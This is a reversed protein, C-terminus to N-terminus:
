EQSDVQSELWEIGSSINGYVNGRWGHGGPYTKLKVSAGHEGLEKVARKAHQDINIFDAPSHLIFYPKDKAGRLDGILQPRFISMAVFSGTVPTDEVVSQAYVAPGGSSWGLAFVNKRNIKLREGADKVVSAVFEETTFTANDPKLKKTPWVVRNEDDSWAHAVLELTIYDKGLAHKHIRRCFPQFDENGAGGPLILLVKWGDKPVPANEHPGIQFYKMKTSGDAHHETAPIGEFEAELRQQEVDANAVKWVRFEESLDPIRLDSPDDSFENGHKDWWEGWTEGDLPEVHRGTLEKIAWDILRGSGDDQADLHDHLAVLFSVTKAERHREVIEYAYTGLDLAVGRQMQRRIWRIKADLEAIDDPFPEFTKGVETQSLVPIEHSTLEPAFTAGEKEWWARWARSDKFAHHEVETIDSLERGVMSRIPDSNDAEMIAILTPIARKDELSGFDRVVLEITSMNDAGAVHQNWLEGLLAVRGDVTDVSEPYPVYNQGHETKPLVPIEADNGILSYDNRNRQWWRRWFAGDTLNHFPVATLARLSRSLRQTKDSNDADLIGILVPIAREVRAEGLAAALDYIVGVRGQGAVYGNWEKVILVLKGEDTEINEPFPTYDKGHETKVFVPITLDAVRDAYKGQNREWWRQWWAGDHFSSHRVGTIEGLGHSGVGYVTDYSNDAQIIGIMHPIAAAVKDEALAEIIEGFHWDDTKGEVMRTWYRGLAAIQGEATDIDDPFPEYQRGHQTKPLDPVDIRAVEPPYNARNKEWWRRWWAGDHIGKYGVDTLRFLVHYGVGYITSYSNDADIIGILTPIAKPNKAYIFPACESQVDHLTKDNGAAAKNWLQVIKTLEEDVSLITPQKAETQDQNDMLTRRFSQVSGDQPIWKQEFWREFHAIVNADHIRPKLSPILEVAVLGRSFQHLMAAAQHRKAHEAESIFRDLEGSVIEDASKNAASDRWAAYEEDSEFSRFTLLEVFRVSNRKVYDDNDSCGLHMVDFYRENLAKSYKPWYGKVIDPKARPQLNPWCKELILYGRGEELQSLRAGLGTALTWRVNNDLSTLVEIWEEDTSDATLKPRPTSRALLSSTLLKRVQKVTGDTPSFWEKSVWEDLVPGFESQQIVKVVDPLSTISSSVLSTLKKDANIRATSKLESMLRKVEAAAITNADQNKNEAYWKAYSDSDAAFERLTCANLYYLATGRVAADADTQGLHFVDFTRPNLRKKDRFWPMFGKLIQRKAGPDVEEWCSNLIDFARDGPLMALEDGINAGVFWRAQEDIALLRKRFDDDSPTTQEASQNKQQDTESDGKKVNNAQSDPSETAAAPLEPQSDDEARTVALAGLLFVAVAGLGIAPIAKGRHLRAQFLQRQLSEIRRRVNSTQAMALGTIAAPTHVRVALRALARSYRAVDGLCDAAIADAVLDCAAAHASRMRWALPHFSFLLSVGHLLANWSLDRSKLHAIEHALIASLEGRNGRECEEKPLLVVPRFLGVLCPTRLEETVRVTMEFRCNLRGQVVAAEKQIWQPAAPARRLIGLIRRLGCGTRLLLVITRGLWAALCCVVILEFRVSPTEEATRPQIASDGADPTMPTTPLVSAIPPAPTDISREEAAIVPPSPGRSRPPASDIARDRRFRTELDESAATPDVQLTDIQTWRSPGPPIVSSDPQDVSAAALVESPVEAPLVAWHIVPPWPALGVLLLIGLSTARWLVVRWRPNSKGLLAHLLWAVTLLITVKAVLLVLVVGFHPADSQTLWSSVANM